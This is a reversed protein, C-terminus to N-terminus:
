ILIPDFQYLYFYGQGIKKLKQYVKSPDGPTVIGRLKEMLQVDSMKSLRDVRKKQVAAPSESGPNSDAPASGGSASASAAPTNNSSSRQKLIQPPGEPKTPQPPPTRAVAVKPAKPHDLPPQPRPSNLDGRLSKPSGQNSPLTHSPRPVIAPRNPPPVVTRQIVPTNSNSSGASSPSASIGGGYVNNDKGNSNGQNSNNDNNNHMSLRTIHPSIDQDFGDEQSNSKMLMFPSSDNQVSQSMSNLVSLSPQSTSFQSTRPPVLNMGQSGQGAKSPRRNTDPSPPNNMIAPLKHTNHQPQTQKKGQGMAQTYFELVDLVAQPNKAM